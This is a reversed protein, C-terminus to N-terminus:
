CCPADPAADADLVRDLAQLLAFVAGDYAAQLLQGATTHHRLGHVLGSAGPLNPTREGDLFPLLVM